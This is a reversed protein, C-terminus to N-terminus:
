HLQDQPSPPSLEEKMMLIVVRIYEIIEALAAEEEESEGDSTMEARAIQEIDSLADTVEESFMDTTQQNGSGLGALFGTCWQALAETRDELLEDDGPLWLEFRLQEDNIQSDTAKHLESLQNALQHDPEKVMQLSELLSLYSDAQSMPQRCLLGCSIGHCESLEMANLDGASIALTQDFDPLQLVPM